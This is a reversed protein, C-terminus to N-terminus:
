TWRRRTPGTTTRKQAIVAGTSDHLELTPDALATTGGSITLSPGMARVIVKKSATGPFSSAGILRHDGTGAAV